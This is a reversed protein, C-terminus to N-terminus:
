ATSLWRKGGIPRGSHRDDRLRGDAEPDSALETDNSIWEKAAQEYENTAKRSEEILKLEAETTSIKELDDYLRMLEPLMVTMQNWAVRDKYNVEEKELRIIRNAKVRIAVTVIYRQVYSDLVKLDAAKAM